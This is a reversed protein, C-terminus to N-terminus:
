ELTMKLQLPLTCLMSGCFYLFHVGTEVITAEMGLASSDTLVTVVVM